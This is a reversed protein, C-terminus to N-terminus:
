KEGLKKLLEVVKGYIDGDDNWYIDLEKDSAECNPNTCVWTQRLPFNEINPNEVHEIRTEFERKEGMLLKEECFPCYKETSRSM